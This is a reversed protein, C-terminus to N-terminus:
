ARVPSFQSNLSRVPGVVLNYLRYYKQWSDYGEDFVLEITHFDQEM